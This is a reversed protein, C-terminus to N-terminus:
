TLRFGVLSIAPSRNIKGWGYNWSQTFFNFLWMTDFVHFNAIECWAAENGVEAENLLYKSVSTVWQHIVQHGNGWFLVATDRTSDDEGWVQGVECLLLTAEWVDALSSLSLLAISLTVSVFRFQVIVSLWKLKGVSM